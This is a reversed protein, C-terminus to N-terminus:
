EGAEAQARARRLAGVQDPTVSCRGDFTVDGNAGDAAAAIHHYMWRPEAFMARIADALLKDDDDM